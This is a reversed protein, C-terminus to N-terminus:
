DPLKSPKNRKLLNPADRELVHQVVWRTTGVRAAVKRQSEGNEIHRVIRLDRSRNKRRRSAVQKKQRERQRESSHEWSAIRGALRVVVEKLVDDSLETGLRRNIWKATELLKGEFQLWRERTRLARKYEPLHRAAQFLATSVTRAREVISEAEALRGTNPRM